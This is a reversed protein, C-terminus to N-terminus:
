CACFNFYPGPAAERVDSATEARACDGTGLAAGWIARSKSQPGLAESRGESARHADTSSRDPGTRVGEVTVVEDMAEGEMSESCEHDLLGRPKDVDDTAVETAATASVTAPCFRVVGLTRRTSDLRKDLAFDGGAEAGFGRGRM